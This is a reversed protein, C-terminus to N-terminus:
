LEESAQPVHEGGRRLAEATRSLLALLYRAEGETVGCPFSREVIRRVLGVTRERRHPPLGVLRSIEELYKLMVERTERAVPREYPGGGRLKMYFEYLTVAVANSLNLTPYEEHAPITVVVDCSALEENTLGTSERGFVLAVTGSWRLSEVFERLPVARRAISTPGGPKATTGVSLDCGELAEELSVVIRCSELVDRARMAAAYARDFSEFVPNVLLLDRFGFNKMARAIMGVNLSKEPEVLVVRLSPRESNTEM